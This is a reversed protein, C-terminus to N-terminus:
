LREALSLALMFATLWGVAAFLQWFRLPHRQIFPQERASVWNPNPRKMDQLWESLAQYRSSPHLDVSREIARDLWEPVLPNHRTAPVYKLRQISRSDKAAALREGYPKKGTLMEYLIVGLSFQDTRQSKTDSFRSEPASYDLTGLIRDRMFPAGAEEVGAIWCSGFDVIVAGRTGVIINDPKLDQHLSDKRHFARAGKIVQEILEIADPVNFPAREKILQGLTPGPVYETLYYLHTRAHKPAVIRVVNSNQIRSGIWSEMVFREIYAPDDIYNVSPTKMVLPHDDETKVLYIQSRESEHLIREVKLGDLKHGVDLLPPFPLKSLAAVADNQSPKGKSKIQCVQASLNDQSGNGLAEKVLREPLDQLRDHYHELLAFLTNYTIMEHVGDSTIIYIDDVEVEHHDMDVELAPDAGLARSLYTTKYDIKQVHDRTLQELQGQRFRYIRTDGIHFTYAMDGKLLLCSFTTLHGEQRVSNQSQSWLYRNLSQIVQIASKQTRWTDPTAYYDSLFGTIATQSALKASSSSSVGDATAIAIGKCALTSGDPIRAGITDQNDAKVGSESHQAFIVQLCSHIHDM